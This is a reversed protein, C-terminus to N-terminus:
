DKKEPKRIKTIPVVEAERPADTYYPKEVARGQEDALERERAAILALCARIDQITQDSLTHKTGPPPTTDKIISGLVKRMTILIRQEKTLEPM